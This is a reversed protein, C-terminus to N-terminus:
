LKLFYFSIDGILITAHCLHMAHCVSQLAAIAQLTIIYLEYLLM